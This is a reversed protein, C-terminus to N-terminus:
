LIKEHILFNAAHIEDNLLKFIKPQLFISDEKESKLSSAIVFLLNIRMDSDRAIDKINKVIESPTSLRPIKISEIADTLKSTRQSIASLLKNRNYIKEPNLQLIFAACDAGKVHHPKFSNKEFTYRIGDYRGYAKMTDLYGIKIIKSTNNTDFILFNGLDLSSKIIKFDDLEKKATELVNNRIFGAAQLDVAIVTDAGKNMAMEVPMNDCYGGDIYKTEDITCTQVAPFCSASALIFDILRGDPIDEIYLFYGKFSPFETTVLGYEMSSNRITDEDIYTELIKRLGTSEAGGKLVIERAYALADEAPMGGIDMKSLKQKINNYLSISNQNERPNPSKEIDFIMETELHNWLKESLKQDGQVIMASNIAGVSTGMVMDIKIDLEILAKWVGIEYGGRSGGGSLVLATKKM